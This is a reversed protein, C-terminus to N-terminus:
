SRNRSNNSLFYFMDECQTIKRKPVGPYFRAFIWYFLLTGRSIFKAFISQGPFDKETLIYLFLNLSILIWKNKEERCHCYLFTKDVQIRSQLMFKLHATGRISFGSTSTKARAGRNRWMKGRLFFEEHESFIQWLIISAHFAHIYSLM